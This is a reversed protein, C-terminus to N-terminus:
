INSDFFVQWVGEKNKQWVLIYKGPYSGVCQGIEYVINESVPEVILPKLTLKYNPNNMYGYVPILQSRGVVMPKHNYYMTNESYVSNILTEANHANCLEIWKDRQEDIENMNVNADNAEALFELERKDSDDTTNWILVHKMIAGNKNKFSGIEYDYNNNAQIRKTTSVELVKFDSKGVLDILESRSSIDIGNPSLVYVPDTYLNALADLNKDNIANMWKENSSISDIVKSNTGVFSTDNFGNQKSRENCASLLLLGLVLNVLQIRM